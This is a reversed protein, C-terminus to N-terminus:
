FVGLRDLLARLEELTLTEADDPVRVALRYPDPAPRFRIQSARAVLRLDREDDILEVHSPWATGSGREWAQYLARVAFDERWLDVRVPLGAAGVALAVSDRGERWALRLLSDEWTARSWAIAPPDWTAALARVVREGPDRFGLSEAAAGIRVAKRWAPVYAILSDGALGFDFATGFSSAVRLRLREPAAMYLDAQAGPLRREGREAWMVVSASVFAARERREGLARLYRTEREGLDLRPQLVPRPACSALVFTALASAFVTRSKM